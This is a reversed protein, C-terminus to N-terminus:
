QFATQGSEVRRRGKLHCKRNRKEEIKNKNNDTEPTPFINQWCCQQNYAEAFCM